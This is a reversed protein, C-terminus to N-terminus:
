LQTPPGPRCQDEMCKLITNYNNKFMFYESSLSRWNVADPFRSIMYVAEEINKPTKLQSYRLNKEDKWILNDPFKDWLARMALEKSAVVWNIMSPNGVLFGIMGPMKSIIGCVERKRRRKLRNYVFLVGSIFPTFKVNITRNLSLHYLDIKLPNAILYDVARESSNQHLHYLNIKDQYIPDMLINLAFDSSNRSLTKWIIKDPNSRLLSEVYPEMKKRVYRKQLLVWMYDSFKRPNLKNIHYPVRYLHGDSPSGVVPYIGLKTLKLLELARPNRNSLLGKKSVLDIRDLNEEIILMARHSPNLCLYQLTKIDVPGDEGFSMAYILHEVAAMKFMFISYCPCKEDCNGYDWVSSNVNTYEDLNKIIHDSARKNTILGRPDLKKEYPKLSEVLQFESGLYAIIKLIDRPIRYMM